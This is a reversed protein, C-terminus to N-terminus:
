IFPLIKGKTLFLLFQQILTYGPGIAATRPQSIPQVHKM